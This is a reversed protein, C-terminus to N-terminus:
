RLLIIKWLKGVTDGYYPHSAETCGMGNTEVECVDLGVIQHNGSVSTQVETDFSYM